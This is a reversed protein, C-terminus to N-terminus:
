AEIVLREGRAIADAALAELDLTSEIALCEDLRGRIVPREPLAGHVDAHGVWEAGATGVVLQTALKALWLLTEKFKLHSPNDAIVSFIAYSAQYFKLRYLSIALYYEALQRNGPDDGTDGSVVRYMGAAAESWREKDFMKKAAAAGETMTGAVVPEQAKPAGEDLDIDVGSGQQGGAPKTGGKDGGGEEDLNIVEQASATEPSVVGGTFAVSALLCVAALRKRYM